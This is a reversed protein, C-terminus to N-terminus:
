ILIVKVVSNGHCAPIRFSKGGFNLATLLSLSPDDDTSVYKSRQASPFVIRAISARISQMVPFLSNSRSKTSEGGNFTDGNNDDHSDSDSDSDNHSSNGSNVITGLKIHSGNLNPKARSTISDIDEIAPKKKKKLNNRDYNKDSTTSSNTELYKKMTELLEPAQM